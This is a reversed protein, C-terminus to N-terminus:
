HAMAHSPKLEARETMVASLRIKSLSEERQGASRLASELVGVQGTLRAIQRQQKQIQQQQQKVAEILLATLRSYDVGQADKGNKEYSVVEPVVQGVEEAIVGIEHKGSDKLDYSVGRLQEVKGLANQLAHINTKWRRSSYTTWGDAISPGAGQGLTLLNTPSATGIGVRTTATAGNVGAVSGLVVADSVTVMAHAGIATANHLNAEGVACSSGVCTLDSGSTNASLASYGVATNNSGTNNDLLANLGDATNSSGTTNYTLAAAGSATNWFGTTNYTLAVNGIATNYDASAGYNNSLAQYGVATNNGGTANGFLAESGVATNYSGTTSTYLASSGTATNYGGTTNLSLASVGSATNNNGTTNSYLAISGSATNYGGTTNSYLAEFGGATNGTGTMSTNGAFGLFANYSDYSGFAFLNSGLNFSTASVTGAVTQNGTFTNSGLTAYSGAPQFASASWGSLLSANLNPVVTTSSVQLPAAGQPTTSILQAGSVNGTASISGQVSQSATFANAGTTAFAACTFPLATLASGSACSNSALALAVNGSTGGGTLGTNATVGTITGAGPFTQGSAFNVPSGFTVPQTFHGTGYVDLAYAPATTGIGVSTNATAGNVGNISGLVLANSSTVQANAGIASANNFSGSGVDAQYGVATNGSGTTNSALAVDGVATNNGGTNLLLAEYGTATNNAGATNASLAAQGTATNGSGTINQELAEAGSATNSGGTTNSSLVFSGSATNGSGTTNAELAGFGSATNGSGTTNAYLTVNGLATNYSSTTNASLAYNGIATNGSGSTNSSLVNAGIATNGTGTTNSGLAAPGSATNGTGTMTTNGAFGLFANSNAYSGFAFLNSGIQFSSGTVVGTASLNGSVTQNGTFTNAASLLPVQSTNLNLTVNGSTGGGSLATGATVGTITGTGVAACAWASGSWQLVQNASCETTLGLNLTGSTGGGMLGSGSATTVGTITGEGTGPFTQGAAFTIQGNNAINLGTEEPKSTGSGFLLNLTGSPTATDNDAPEAQWLFTQTVAASTSSNFASALMSLPDSDKGATATATGTAPLSLTGRVTAAGKVDLTTAPTATAIGIRGSAGSGSQAIVSSTIDTTADWLPVLNVTGGATTVDLSGTSPATSSEAGVNMAAANGNSPVALVFASPPLGGVTAADGAKLAYPVSLLLVRPQPQQEAIQIGLWRAEGSTFLNTPVGNPKTIGLQVSYHGTADPQVNQTESWLAEGGQQGGYLSFAISVTGSLPNGSEDTAVNSFQILPPVQTSAPISSATQAALSLVFSLFGVTLRVIRCKM